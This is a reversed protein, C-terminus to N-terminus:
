LADRLINTAQSSSFLDFKPESPPSWAFLSRKPDSLHTERSTKDVWVQACSMESSSLLRLKGRWTRMQWRWLSWSRFFRICNELTCSHFLNPSSPLPPSPLSSLFPLFTLSSLFPLFILSTPVWMTLRSSSNTDGEEVNKLLLGTEKEDKDDSRKTRSRYSFLLFLFILMVM